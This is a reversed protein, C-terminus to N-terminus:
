KPLLTILLNGIRTDANNHGALANIRTGIHRHLCGYINVNRTRRRLLRGTLLVVLQSPFRRGRLFSWSLSATILAKVEFQDQCHDIVHTIM